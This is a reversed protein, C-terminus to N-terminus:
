AMPKNNLKKCDNIGFHRFDFKSIPRHVAGMIDNGHDVVVVSSTMRKAM